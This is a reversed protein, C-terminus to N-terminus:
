REAAKLMWAVAGLGAILLALGVSAIAVGAPGADLFIRGRGGAIMVVVAVAPAAGVVLASLRAQATLAHRERRLEAVRAARVALRTFVAAAGAGTDAAVQFALAAHRGNSPLAVELHNAVTAVPAGSAAMRAVANLDASPTRDAAADLALRLSSGARLEAALGSCFVAEDPPQPKARTRKRWFWVLLAPGGVATAPLPWAAWLAVLAVPIPPLRAALGAAALAAVLM